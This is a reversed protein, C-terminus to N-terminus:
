QFPPCEEAIAAGHNRHRASGARLRLPARRARTGMLHPLHNACWVILAVFIPRVLLVLRQPQHFWTWAALALFLSSFAIQNVLDGGEVVAPPPEALSQFPHFSIWAALFAAVFLVSSIITDADVAARPATDASVRMDFQAM